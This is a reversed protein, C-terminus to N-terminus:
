REGGRMTLAQHQAQQVLLCALKPQIREAHIPDDLVSENIEETLRVADQQHRARGTRSLAGREVGRQALEVGPPEVDDGYLVRDLEVKGAYALDLDIGFDLEVKGTGQPGDQALVRVHDHDAL